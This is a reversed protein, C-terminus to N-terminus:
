ARGLRSKTMMMMVKRRAVSASPRAAPEARARRREVALVPPSIPTKMPSPSILQSVTARMTRAWAIDSLSFSNTSAARPRPAPSRRIM